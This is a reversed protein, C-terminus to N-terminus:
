RLRLKPAPGLPIPGLAIRGGSLNLTADLNDPDGSLAAVTGVASELTARLGEPLLGAEAALALMARWNRARLTIKGSPLGEADVDLAGAMWLELDGWDAKLLKLDIRTPQPRAREIAFRDWPADFRINADLSAAEMREPLLALDSLSAVLRSAPKLGEASFTIQYLPNQADQAQRAERGGQEELARLAFQAHELASQWGDSSALGLSELEIVMRELTLATGPTFVLSGRMDGATINIRERPTAISQNGPWVAVIHQPKYSLSFFQFFPARWALGSRTDALELDTITTDLRNPFGRVKLDSYEAVWADARRAAFWAELGGQWGAAAIFWWGSWGLVALVFLAIFGNLRRM